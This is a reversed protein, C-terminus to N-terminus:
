VFLLYLLLFGTLKSMEMEIDSTRTLFRDIDRV